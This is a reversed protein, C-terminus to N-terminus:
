FPCDYKIVVQELKCHKNITKIGIRESTGPLRYAITGNNWHEILKQKTELCYVQKDSTIAINWDKYKVTWKSVIDRM